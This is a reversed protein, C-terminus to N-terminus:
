REYSNGGRLLEANKMQRCAPCMKIMESTSENVHAYAVNLLEPVVPDMPKKCCSCLSYKVFGKEIYTYKDEQSHATHYDNTLKIAKTPCYHECLGCFACTNHWVIFDQGTKEKNEQIKIAGGACVHVCTNCLVCKDEDFKIKGRLAAPEFTPGFPYPDTSPGKIVNNVLIKLFSFM